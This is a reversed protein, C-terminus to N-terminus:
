RAAERRYLPGAKEKRFKIRAQRNRRIRIYEALVSQSDPMGSLHAIAGDATELQSLLWTRPEDAIGALGICKAGLGFRNAAIFADVTSM